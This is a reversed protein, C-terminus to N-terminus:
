PALMKEDELTAGLRILTRQIEALQQGQEFTLDNFRAPFGLKPRMSDLHRLRNGQGTMVRIGSAGNCGRANIIAMLNKLGQENPELARAARLASHSMPLVDGSSNTQLMGPQWTGHALVPALLSQVAVSHVDALNRTRTLNEIDDRSDLERNQKREMELLRTREEFDLQRERDIVIQRELQLRLDNLEAAQMALTSETQLRAREAALTAFNRLQEAAVLARELEIIRANERIIPEAEAIAKRRGEDAAETWLQMTASRVRMVRDQLSPLAEVGETDRTKQSADEIWALQQNLEALQNLAWFYIRDAETQSAPNPAYGRQPALKQEAIFAQMESVFTQGARLESEGIFDQEDRQLFFMASAQLTGVRKGEDSTMLTAVRDRLRGRTSAVRTLLKDTESIQAEFRAVVSRRLIDSAEAQSTTIQDLKARGVIEDATPQALVTSSLIALALGCIGTARLYNM